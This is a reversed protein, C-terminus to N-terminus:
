ARPGESPAATLRRANYACAAMYLAAVLFAGFILGMGYTIALNVGGLAPRAMIGPAFAALVVFGAYFLLYLVFLVLGARTNAASVEPHEDASSRSLRADSSNM